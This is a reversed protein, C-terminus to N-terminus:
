RGGGARARPPLHPNPPGLRTVDSAPHPCSEPAGPDAAVAQEARRTLSSAAVHPTRPLERASPQPRLAYCSDHRPHCAAATARQESGVCLRAAPPHASVRGSGPSRKRSLARARATFLTTGEARGGGAPRLRAITASSSRHRSRARAPSRADGGTGGGRNKNQHLGRAAPAHRTVHRPRSPAPRRRGPCPPPDCVRFLGFVVALYLRTPSTATTGRSCYKPEDDCCGQWDATGGM